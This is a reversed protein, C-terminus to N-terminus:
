LLEQVAEEVEDLLEKFTVQKSLSGSLSGVSFSREPESAFAKYCELAYEELREKSPNVYGDNSKVPNEFAGVFNIPQDTRVNVLVMDPLTQNAFSNIKGTPMSCVFAEVFDRVTEATEGGLKENLDHVAITAYRYLTSSNFEITGIHGAGEDTSEEDESHLDDIATYYDFENSIRHTSIAHAVQCCADVNMSTDAAVMRGFLAIEAGPAECIAKKLADKNEKIDISEKEGIDIVEAVARAQSSSIFFLADKKGDKSSKVQIEKLANEALLVAEEKEYGKEILYDAVKEEANKTRFALREIDLHDRFYTRVAHKWCQSSVRARTVGGYRATKPSGTDDRNVCSPPVTQLVHIDVYVRKENM